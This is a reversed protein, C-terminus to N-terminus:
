FDGEKGDDQKAPPMENANPQLFVESSLLDKEGDHFDEGIGYGGSGAETSKAEVRTRFEELNQHDEM